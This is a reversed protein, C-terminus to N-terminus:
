SLIQRIWSKRLYEWRFIINFRMSTTYGRHIFLYSFGCIIIIIILICYKYIFILASPLLSWFTHVIRKMHANWTHRATYARKLLKYLSLYYLSLFSFIDLHLFITEQWSWFLWFFCYELHELTLVFFTFYSFNLFM